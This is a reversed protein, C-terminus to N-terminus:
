TQWGNKAATRHKDALRCFFARSIKSSTINITPPLFSHHHHSTPHGHVFINRKKKAAGSQRCIIQFGRMQIHFLKICIKYYYFFFQEFLLTFSAKGYLLFIHYLMSSQEVLPPVLINRWSQLLSERCKTIQIVETVTASFVFCVRLWLVFIYVCLHIIYVCLVKKYKM